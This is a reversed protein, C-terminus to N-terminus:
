LGIASEKDTHVRRFADGIRVSLEIAAAVPEARPQEQL